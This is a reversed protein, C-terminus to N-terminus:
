VISEFVPARNVDEVTIKVDQATEKVGDSVTIRVIYDGADEYGLKKENSTMWGSYTITLPKGEPDLTKPELKLTTGEKVVVDKIKELVPAKNLEKVIIRVDQSAENEGDSATITSTYEGADGEETDWEGIDSLPATFAYSIKDGDPDAAKLNPFKVTDGETVIVTPLEKVEESKAEDAVSEEVVAETDESVGETLESVDILTVDGLESSDEIPTVYNCGVMFILMLVTVLSIIKKM